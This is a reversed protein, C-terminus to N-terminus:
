AEYGPVVYLQYEDYDLLLDSFSSSEFGRRESESCPTSHGFGFWQALCPTDLDSGKASLSVSEHTALQLDKFKLIALLAM